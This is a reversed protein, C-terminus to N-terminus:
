RAGCHETGHVNGYQKDRSGSQQAGSEPNEQRELDPNLSTCKQETVKKHVALYVHAQQSARGEVNTHAANHVGVFRLHNIPINRIKLKREISKASRIMKNFKLAHGSHNRRETTQAERLPRLFTTVVIILWGDLGRYLTMEKASLLKEPKAKDSKLVDIQSLKHKYHERDIMIENNAM